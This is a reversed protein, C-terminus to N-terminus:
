GGDGHQCSARYPVTIGSVKRVEKGNKYFNKGHGAVFRSIFKDGIISSKDAVFRAMGKWEASDDAKSPDGQPGTYFMEEEKYFESPSAASGMTGNPAYLAISLRAQKNNDLLTPLNSLRTKYGRQQVELGAYADYPDRGLGNMTNVTEEVQYSGWNYNMFFEDVAYIGDDDPKVWIDNKSNVANQYNVSGSNAMSDYWSIKLDHGKSKAYRKFHKLMEALNKSDQETCGSTEQNFFYGDFGYYIAIDAMKEAFEKSCMKRLEAISDSHGGGWPFGVTAYVPVGNRHAANVVDPSPLAFIGEDTGAWFILSDLLQWNDFAYVNFDDGGNSGAQDHNWSMIACSTIRAKESALPNIKVGQFRKALPVTARNYKADPDKEPDFAMMTDYRFAPALPQLNLKRHYAENVEDTGDGNVAANIEVSGRFFHPILSFTMVTALLLSVVTKRGKRLMM